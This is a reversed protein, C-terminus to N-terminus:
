RAVAAAGARMARAEDADARGASTAAGHLAAAADLLLVAEDRRGEAVLLSAIWRAVDGLHSDPAPLEPSLRSAAIARALEPGRLALDLRLAAGWADIAARPEVGRLVNRAAGGPGFSRARVLRAIRRNEADLVPSDGAPNMLSEREPPVHVAGYLHLIEHALLREGRPGPELRALVRRGLFEAAGRRAGEPARAGLVGAVIGHEPAPVAELAAFAAELDAGAAAAGWPEISLVAFRAGLAPALAAGAGAWWTRLRFRWGEGARAAEDAYLHVPVVVPATGPARGEALLAVAEATAGPDLDGLWLM